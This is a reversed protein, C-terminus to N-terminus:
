LIKIYKAPEAFRFPNGSHDIPHLRKGTLYQSITSIPWCRMAGAIDLGISRANVSLNVITLQKSAVVKKSGRSTHRHAKVEGIIINTEVM